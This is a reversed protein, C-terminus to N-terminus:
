QGVQEPAVHLAVANATRNQYSLNGVYQYLEHHLEQLGTGNLPIIETVSLKNQTLTGTKDFCLVSVNAMSEVANVRQILTKHLSIKVAGITLSLIAVLVLGQPVLSTVFVVCNR